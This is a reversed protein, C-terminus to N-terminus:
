LGVVRLGRIDWPVGVFTEDISDFFVLRITARASM